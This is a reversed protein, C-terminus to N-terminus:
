SLHIEMFKQFSESVDYNVTLHSVGQRKTLLIPTTIDAYNSVYDRDMYLLKDGLIVEDGEEVYTAFGRGKLRDSHIGCHILVTLCDNVEIAVLNRYQGLLVVKGSVPAYFIDEQPLLAAGMGDVQEDMIYHNVEVLPIIEGRAPMYLEIKQPM